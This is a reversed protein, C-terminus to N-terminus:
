WCRWVRRFVWSGHRWVRVRVWGCDGPGYAYYPAVGLGYGLAFGPGFGWGGGHWHGGGHWGGGHWGGGHWGGHGGHFHQADAAQPAALALGAALVVGTLVKSFKSM